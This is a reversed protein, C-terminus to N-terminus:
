QTPRWCKISDLLRTSGTRCFVLLPVCYRLAHLIKAIALSALSNFKYCMKKIKQFFYAIIINYDSFSIQLRICPKGGKGDHILNSTDRELLRTIYLINTIQIFTRRRSKFSLGTIPYIPIANLHFAVWISLNWLFPITEKDIKYITCIHLTILCNYNSNPQLYAYFYTISIIQCHHM